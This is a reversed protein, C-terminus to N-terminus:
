KSSISLIGGFIGSATLEPIAGNLDLKPDLETFGEDMAFKLAEEFNGKQKFNINNKKATTKQQKYSEFESSATIENCAVISTTTKL